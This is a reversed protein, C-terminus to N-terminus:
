ETSILCCRIPSALLFESSKFAKQVGFILSHVVFFVCPLLVTVPKNFKSVGNLGETNEDGGILKM